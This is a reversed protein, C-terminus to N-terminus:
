FIKKLGVIFSSNALDKAGSGPLTYAQHLSKYNTSIITASVSLKSALGQTLTVAYDSYSVPNNAVSQNGLHPTLTLDNGLEVAYNLDLYRSGKSNMQGFLTTVSDSLKVSFPGSSAAVYVETTNPNQNLPVNTLNNSPYWYQLVGVDLTIGNSLTTKYGGYLDVEVPGKVNYAASPATDKIWNISSAWAGVYVGSEAAFDVGAQLAPKSASQSIGRYRYDSVVSANFELSSSAPTTQAQLLGSSAALISCVILKTNM